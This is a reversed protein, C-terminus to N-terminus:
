VKYVKDGIRVRSKVSMGIEQGKKGQAIPQHDLQISKVTEKFETTHGKIFIKDGSKIGSKILKVAAASVNGFYHTIEGIQEMSMESRSSRATPKISKKIRTRRVTKKLAQKNSKLM